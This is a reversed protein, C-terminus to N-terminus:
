RVGERSAALLSEIVADWTTLGRDAKYRALANVLDRDLRVWGTHPYNLHILERWVKVPLPYGAERDWPVQEVGFGNSGRTFITGSFLLNLPVSGEGLAHLYASGTVEFDYSCPLALDVETEGSFGQVMASCQMWQFPRLTDRWRARPGFLGLLAREEAEDYPRRQPEIRVQCRLAIAHVVAGTSETIRLKATLQPAAAYPEALIDLVQFSLETV